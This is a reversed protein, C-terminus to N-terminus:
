KFFLNISIISYYYRGKFECIAYSIINKRSLAVWVYKVKKGIEQNIKFIEASISLFKFSWKALSYLCM